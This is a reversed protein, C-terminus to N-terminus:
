GAFLKEEGIKFGKIIKNIEKMRDKIKMFEELETEKLHKVRERLEEKEKQLGPIIILETNEFKELMESHKVDITYIIQNQLQKGKRSNSM